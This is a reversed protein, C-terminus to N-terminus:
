PRSMWGGELEGRIEIKGFNFSRVRMSPSPSSSTRAIEADVRRVASVPASFRCLGNSLYFVACCNRTTNCAPGSRLKDNSTLFAGGSQKGQDPGRRALDDGDFPMTQGRFNIRSVPPHAPGKTSRSCWTSATEPRARRGQARVAPPFFFIVAPAASLARPHPRRRGQVRTRTYVTRPQKIQLEDTLKTPIELKKTVRSVRDQQRDPKEAVLVVLVNGMAASPSTPRFLGPRSCTEQAIHGEQAGPRVPGGPKVTMYSLSRGRRSASPARSVFIPL